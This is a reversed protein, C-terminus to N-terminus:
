KVEIKAGDAIAPPPSLVIREEAKLGTLIEVKGDRTEGATIWRLRAVSGEDVVFIGTLPGRRVLASEPVALAKRAGKEIILRAFMGSRLAGDPNDLVVRVTFTRSRPDGAPLIESLVGQRTGEGSAEVTVQVRQGVALGAISSEPVSAEVKMKSTDEVVFLPMGPAATDGAEVRKEAVVGAFPAKVESHGYAVRAAIVGEEAARLGAAAAEYGTTADEVNKRSAAQRAQLREMREKSLRANEEQARAATVGAEAQALRAAVDRSEVRALVEGARVRDGERRLVEEVRGMLVTGPTARRLPMLGATVPIGEAWPIEVAMEVSVPVAPGAEGEAPKTGKGCAIGGLSALLVLAGAIRLTRRGSIGGSVGGFNTTMIEMGEERDSM